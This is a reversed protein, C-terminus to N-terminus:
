VSMLIATGVSMVQSWRLVSADPEESQSSDLSHCFICSVSFRTDMNEWVGVRVAPMAAKSSYGGCLKTIYFVRKTKHPSHPCLVVM